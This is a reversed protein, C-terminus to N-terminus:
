EPTQRKGHFIAISKDRGGFLIPHALYAKRMWSYFQFVYAKGNYFCYIISVVGNQSTQSPMQNIDLNNLM